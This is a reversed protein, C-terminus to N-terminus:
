RRRQRSSNCSTSCLVSCFHHNIYPPAHSQKYSALHHHWRPLVVVAAAAILAKTITNRRCLTNNSDPTTIIKALSDYVRDSSSIQDSSSM